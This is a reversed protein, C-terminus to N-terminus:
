AAQAPKCARIGAGRGSSAVFFDLLRRGADTKVAGQLYNIAENRGIGTRHLAKYAAKLEEREPRTLGARVLGVLNEGVVLGDRDTICFPPVDQVIRALIGVLALEGVRVFQHIAANGSIIARDGVQVHGGLLSGSVLTVHDGLQCNHGVHSNTM